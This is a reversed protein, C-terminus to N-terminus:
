KAATPRSLLPDSSLVQLRHSARHSYQFLVRGGLAPVRDKRRNLHHSFSQAVAPRISRRNFPLCNFHASHCCSTGVRLASSHLYVVGFSTVDSCTTVDSSNESCLAGLLALALQHVVQLATQKLDPFAAVLSTVYTVRIGVIHLDSKLHVSLM